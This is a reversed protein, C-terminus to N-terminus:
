KPQVAPQQQSACHFAGLGWVLDFADLPVIKRSPVLKSLIEIARDDTAPNRFTPVILSKNTFLFNCYSEPVRADQVYRPPPTPLVHVELQSGTADVSSRLIEVNRLLGAYNKDSSDSGVAAVVIGPSVFRALQDIHGDTDDGELGGGDVWVVRTTGLQQSLETAVMERTWGPNRNVSLLCSSTTLLTGNGDTELAGGECYLASLSRRCGIKRCVFEANKADDDYPPYKGGWANYHWDVGVLQNDQKHIVFTPGYDRIWVDNTKSSHVHVNEMQGVRELLVDGPADGSLSSALSSSALSSSSSAAAARAAQPGLGDLVHVPQSLSIERIFREFVGPVPEFRNPWTELNRPWAIWTAAQKEWEAPWRHPSEYIM